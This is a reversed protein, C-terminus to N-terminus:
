YRANKRCRCTQKQTRNVRLYKWRWSILVPGILVKTMALRGFNVGERQPDLKLVAQSTIEEVHEWWKNICDSVRDTISNIQLKRTIDRNVKRDWFTVGSRIEFVFKLLKMGGETIKQWQGSKQGVYLFPGSVSVTLTM